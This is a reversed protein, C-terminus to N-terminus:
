IGFNGPFFKKESIEADNELQWNKKHESTKSYKLICYIKLSVDYNTIKLVKLMYLVSLDLIKFNGHM